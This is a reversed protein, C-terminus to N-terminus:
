VAAVIPPRAVHDTTCLTLEDRRYSLWRALRWACVVGPPEWLKSSSSKGADEGDLTRRLFLEEAGEAATLKGRLVPEYPTPPPDGGCARVIAAAATDAQQGALGGQKIPGDTADGAARVHQLGTVSMHEDVRVFGQRDLPLGGIAPGRLLPLAIVTDALGSLDSGALAAADLEVDVGHGALFDHTAVSTGPGFAELPTREHTVVRVERGRGAALVALEYAPLTWSTTPPVVVAVSGAGDALAAPLAGFGLVRTARYPLELHAGPALLLEDYALTTGAATEVTRAEADVHVVTGLLFDACFAHCLRELDISLPPGGWPEGVTQPRLVFSPHAAVVRVRLHHDGLDSLTMLAEIGAIGGGVILVERDLPAASEQGDRPEGGSPSM